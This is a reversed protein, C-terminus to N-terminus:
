SARNYGPRRGKPALPRGHPGGKPAWAVSTIYILKLKLLQTCDNMYFASLFVIWKGPLNSKKYASFGLAGLHFIGKYNVTLVNVSKGYGFIIISMFENCFVQNYIVCWSTTANAGRQGASLFRCSHSQVRTTNDAEWPIWPYSWPQIFVGALGIYCIFVFSKSQPPIM